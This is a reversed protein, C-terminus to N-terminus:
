ARPGVRALVADLPPPVHDLDLAEVLLRAYVAKRGSRVGMFRHLQDRVDRGAWARQGQLARLSRLDGAATVVQEVAPVGLARILEAELDPDCGFFGRDALFGGTLEVDPFARQLARRVVGEQGVDYLGTLSTGSAGFRELHGGLNTVGGMPVVRVGDAALDLGRRRALTEVAVRDSEGEVLVVAPVVAAGYEAIV